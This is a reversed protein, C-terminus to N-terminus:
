GGMGGATGEPFGAQARLVRWMRWALIVAVLASGLMAMIWFGRVQQAAIQLGCLHLGHNALWWGGGVASTLLICTYVCMPMLTIGWCRLLGVLMVLQADFFHFLWVVGFLAVALQYVGADGTYLHAIHSRLVLVATVICLTMLLNIRLSLSCLDRAEGTRGAGIRHSVLICCAAALSAPIFYLLAGLNAAIQHAGAQETGFHAALIAMSTYAAIDAFSTAASPVSIRLMRLFTSRERLAAQWLGRWAARGPYDARGGYLFMPLVIVLSLLSGLAAGRAGMEPFGAHGFILLWSLFAKILLMWVNYVVVRREQGTVQAHNQFVRLIIQLPLALALVQMYAASIAETGPIAHFWALHAACWLVAIIAVVSFAASLLLGQFIVTWLHQVNGSGHAQAFIQQLGQLMGICLAYITIYIAVAISMSALDISSYHGLLTTDVVGDGVMALNALLIPFALRIIERLQKM